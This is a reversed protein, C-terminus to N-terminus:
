GYCVAKSYLILFCVWCIHLIVEVNYMYVRARARVFIINAKKASVM